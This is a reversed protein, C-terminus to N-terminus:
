HGGMFLRIRWRQFISWLVARKYRLGPKLRFLFEHRLLKMRLTGTETGVIRDHAIEVLRKVARNEAILERYKEPVQVPFYHEVLLLSTGLMRGLGLETMRELIGQHDLDWRKLCEAVDRLWFLRFYQHLCGHYVLYMFTTERDLVEVTENHIEIKETSNLIARENGRRLLEHVYIGYHLELFIGKERNLLGIDKKYTTYIKEQRRNLPKPYSQDYNHKLLVARARELDARDILIDVDNFHRSGVDEYLSVALVPGKLPVARIGAEKLVRILEITEASLQLSRMTKRQVVSKWAKRQQEPLRERVEESLPLLRHRQFLMLLLDADTGEPLGVFEGKLLQFLIKHEKTPTIM